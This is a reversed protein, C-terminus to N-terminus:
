LKVRTGDCLVRLFPEDQYSLVQWDCPHRYYDVGCCACVCDGCARVFLERPDPNTPLPGHVRPWNM